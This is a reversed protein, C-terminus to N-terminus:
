LFCSRFCRPTSPDSVKTVTKILVVIESYKEVFLSMVELKLKGIIRSVERETMAVPERQHAEALREPSIKEGRSCTLMPPAM